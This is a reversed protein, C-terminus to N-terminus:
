NTKTTKITINNKGNISSLTFIHNLESIFCNSKTLKLLEM